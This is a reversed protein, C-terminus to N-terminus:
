QFNGNITSKGMLFPSKGYNNTHKGSPAQKKPPHNFWAIKHADLYLFNPSLIPSINMATKLPDHVVFFRRFMLSSAVFM